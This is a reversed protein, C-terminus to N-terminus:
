LIVEKTQLSATSPFRLRFTAGEGSRSEAEIEGRHAQVIGYVMSLGLGVGQGKIKTTFFPEFIHPLVESSIGTGTDSIELRVVRGKKELRGRIDLKGGGPMAELANFILNLLCQQIQNPDGWIELQQEPFETQLTVQCLQMQHGILLFIQDLIDKLNLRRAEISQQRSFSLLNGVIKGCRDTERVMLTLWKKFRLLDEKTPPGEEITRLILTSFNLLSAIPNNIEHAVSAVLKGMSILKDEQVLYALDHKLAEARRELQSELQPTIDRFIELVQSIEGKPDLLPYTSVDCFRNNGEANSHEHLAHASKGTSLTDEMPCPTDPSHCPTLSAHSVQFCFRGLAEKESIGARRCAEENIRMIRYDRDLVMVGETTAKTLAQALSRSMWHEDSKKKLEQGFFSIDDFLRSATLDMLKIHPPKIQALQALVKEEGTLDLILDLGKISLLDKFDTTTYIGRRLAEQFGEAQPNLDAVGVIEADLWQFPGSGLLQQLTLCRRGGGIIGIRMRFPNLSTNM